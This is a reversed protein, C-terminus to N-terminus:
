FRPSGIGRPDPSPPEAVNHRVLVEGLAEMLQDMRTAIKQVEDGLQKREKAAQIRGKKASNLEKFLGARWREDDVYAVRDKLHMSVAQRLEQHTSRSENWGAAREEDLPLFIEGSGFMHAVRTWSRRSSLKERDIRTCIRMLIKYPWLLLYWALQTVVLPPPLPEVHAYTVNVLCKLFMYQEPGRERVREFTTAMMAILMNLALLVIVLLYTILFFPGVIPFDSDHFCKLPIEGGLMVEFLVDLANLYVAILAQENGGLDDGDLSPCFGGMPLGGPRYYLATLAGAFGLIPGLILLLFLAVDMFMLQVM